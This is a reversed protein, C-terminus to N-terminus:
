RFEVYGEICFGLPTYIPVLPFPALPCVRAWLIPAAAGTRSHFRPMPRKKTARRSGQARAKPRASDRKDRTPQLDRNRFIPGRNQYFATWLWHSNIYAKLWWNFPSKPNEEENWAMSWFCALSTNNASSLILYIHLHPIFYATNSVLWPDVIFSPLEILTCFTSWPVDDSSFISSIDPDWPTYLQHAISVSRKLIRDFNTRWAHLKRVAEPHSLVIM